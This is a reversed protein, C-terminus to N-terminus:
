YSFIVGRGNASAFVRGPVSQDAALNGIGGYQHKDDNIRRWTAAGDDSRYVGWQGNIV